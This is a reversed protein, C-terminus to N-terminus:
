FKFLKEVLQSKMLDGEIKLKGSTYAQMANLKGEILSLFDEDSMLITTTPSGHSGEKVECAGDKVKAHWEGGGPGSIKYQFVVDVGAAKEAQFAEPMRDFVSRVTLGEDAAPAEEPGFADMMPTLAVTANHYEKAGTLEHISDWNKHIEEPTPAVKGEGVLAGPGSFVAARNFYGMGANFIM